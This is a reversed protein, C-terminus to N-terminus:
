MVKEWDKLDGYKKPNASILATIQDDTLKMSAILWTGVFKEDKHKWKVM